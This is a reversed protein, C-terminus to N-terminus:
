AVKLTILNDSVEAALKETLALASRNYASKEGLGILLGMMRENVIIPAITVHDPILGQNWEEFYRENVENISVYGHFPKQTTTVINFISPIGLNIRSTGDGTPTFNESWSVAMLQSEKEDLSMIMSKQFHETMREHISATLESFQPSFKRKWRELLFQGPTAPPKSPKSKTMSIVNQPVTATVLTDPTPTPPLPESKKAVTQVTPKVVPVEPPLDMLELHELSDSPQEQVAAATVRPATSPPEPETAMIQTPENAIAQASVNTKELVTVTYAGRLGDPNEGGSLDLPTNTTEAKEEPIAEEALVLIDEPAPQVTTPMASLDLDEVSSDSALLTSENDSKKTGSNAFHQNWCAQLSDLEALVFIAQPKTPFNEPPQLCAVILHGDWQGVPFCEASWTYHNKWQPYTKVASSSESFFRNQIHPLGYHNMAWAFYEETPIRHQELAYGLLSLSSGSLRYLEEFGELHVQFHSIWSKHSM